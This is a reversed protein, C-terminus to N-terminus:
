AAERSKKAPQRAPRKPIMTNLRQEIALAAERTPVGVTSRSAPLFTTLKQELVRPNEGSQIGV